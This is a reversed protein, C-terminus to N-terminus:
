MSAEEEEIQTRLIRCVLDKLHGSVKQWESDHPGGFKVMDSHTRRIPVNIDESRRPSASLSSVLLKEPGNM